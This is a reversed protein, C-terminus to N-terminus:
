LRSAAVHRAADPALLHGDIAQSVLPRDVAGPDMHFQRAPEPAAAAGVALLLAVARFVAVLLQARQRPEAPEASRALALREAQAFLEARHEEAMAIMASPHPFGTMMQEEEHDFRAAAHAIATGEAAGGDQLGRGRGVVFRARCEGSM